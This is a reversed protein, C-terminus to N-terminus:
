RRARATSARRTRTRRPSPDPRLRRSGPSWTQVRRSRGVTPRCGRGSRRATCGLACTRRSASAVCGRSRGDEPGDASPLTPVGRITAHFGPRDCARARPRERRGFSPSRGILPRASTARSPDTRRRRVDHGRTSQGLGAQSRNLPGTRWPRCGPLHADGARGPGASSSCGRIAAYTRRGKRSVTSAVITNKCHNITRWRGAIDRDGLGRLPEAHGLLSDKPQDVLMLQLGVPDTM